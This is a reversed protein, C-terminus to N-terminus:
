ILRLSPTRLAPNSGALKILNHNSILYEQLFDYTESIAIKSKPTNIVDAQFICLVQSM